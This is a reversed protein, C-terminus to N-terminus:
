HNFRECAFCTLGIAIADVEDDLMKKNDTNILKTTMTHVNEKTASGYGTVALKIQNPAYEYFTLGHKAAEYSIVGRAEAVGLATTTNKAFFLKEIAISEPKYATIIGGLADGIEKLRNPFTQKKDTIICTSFLLTEKGGINKELIAVGVRDFGPDIALIIMILLTYTKGIQKM